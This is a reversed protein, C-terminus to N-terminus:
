FRLTRSDGKGRRKLSKVPMPKWKEDVPAELDNSPALTAIAMGYGATSAMAYTGATASFLLSFLGMAM